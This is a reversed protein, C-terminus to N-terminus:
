VNYHLMEFSIFCFFLLILLTVTVWVTCYQINKLVPFSRRQGYEEWFITMILGVVPEGEYSCVSFNKKELCSQLRQLHEKENKYFVLQVHIGILFWLAGNTEGQIWKFYKFSTCALDLTPGFVKGGVMCAFVNFLKPMQNIEKRKKDKIKIYVRLM